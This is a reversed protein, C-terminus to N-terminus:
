DDDDCCMDGCGPTSLSFTVFWGNMNDSSLASKPQIDASDIDFDFVGSEADREMRRLVKWVIELCDSFNTEQQEYDDAAANKLILFDSTFRNKRGGSEFPKIDPTHLWLVPYDISSNLANLIRNSDGFVFDKIGLAGKFASFYAKFDNFSEIQLPM